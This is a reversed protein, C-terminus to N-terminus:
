RRNNFISYGKRVEQRQRKGFAGRVKQEKLITTRFITPVANKKLQFKGPKFGLDAALRPSIVFCDETFHEQCLRSYKTSKWLLHRQSLNKGRNM